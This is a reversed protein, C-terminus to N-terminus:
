CNDSMTSNNNKVVLWNQNLKAMHIHFVFEPGMYNSLSSDKSKSNKWFQLTPLLSVSHFQSDTDGHWVACFM